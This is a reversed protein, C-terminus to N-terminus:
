GGLEMLRLARDGRRFVWLELQWAGGTPRGVVLLLPTACGYEGDAIAQMQARDQSSPTSTRAPHFHWEGVYYRRPQARWLVGLGEALGAIGRVFSTARHESDAPAPQAGTVRALHLDESYRGILVGGTELAGAKTCWRRISPLCEPAIRAKYRGSPEEFRLWSM